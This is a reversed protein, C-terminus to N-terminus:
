SGLPPRNLQFTARVRAAIDEAMLDDVVGSDPSFTTTELSSVAVVSGTDVASADINIKATNRDQQFGQAKAVSVIKITLAVAPLPTARTTAAIAANIRDNTASVLGPAIGPGAVVVASRVDYVPDPPAKLATLQGCATLALCGALIQWTRPMLWFM